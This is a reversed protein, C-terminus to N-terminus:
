KALELFAAKYKKLIRAAVYDIKEDDTMNALISEESNSVTENTEAHCSPLPLGQASEATNPKNIFGQQMM